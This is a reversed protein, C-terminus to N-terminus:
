YIYRGGVPEAERTLGQCTYSKQPSGLHHLPLSGVQWAPSMPSAPEMGPDPLDEASPFPLGRWNKGLTGQISSDPSSCDMLNCLTLCLQLSKAHVWAIYLKTGSTCNFTNTNQKYSPHIDKPMLLCFLLCFLTGWSGGFNDM